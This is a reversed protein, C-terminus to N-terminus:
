SFSFSFHFFPTPTFNKIHCTLDVNDILTFSYKKIKM